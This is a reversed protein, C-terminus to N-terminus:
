DADSESNYGASESGYASESNYSLQANDSSSDYSLPAGSDSSSDYGLVDTIMDELEYDSLDALEHLEEDSYSDYEDGGPKTRRTSARTPQNCGGIVKCLPEFIKKVLKGEIGYLGTLVQNDLSNHKRIWEEMIKLVSEMSGNIGFKTLQLNKNEIIGNVIQQKSGDSDGKVDERFIQYGSVDRRYFLNPKQDNGFM